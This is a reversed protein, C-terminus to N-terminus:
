SNIIEEVEKWVDHYFFYTIRDPARPFGINFFSHLIINDTPGFLLRLWALFTDKYCAMITVFEASASFGLIGLEKWPNSHVALKLELVM